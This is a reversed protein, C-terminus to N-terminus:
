PLQQEIMVQITEEMAPAFGVVHDVPEGQSFLVFLPISQVEYQAALAAERDVDVKVIRARGDFTEALSEVFPEAQRCPACWEAWFDVFVPHDASDILAAFDDVAESRVQGGDYILEVIAADSDTVDPENADESGSRDCALGALAVLLLGSLLGIGFLLRKKTHQQM